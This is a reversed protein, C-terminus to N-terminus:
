KGDGGAGCKSCAPYKEKVDSLSYEIANRCIASCTSRAHYRTGYETIFVQSGKVIVPSCFECAYYKAGSQNREKEIQEGGVGVVDIKIYSCDKKVHYVKGNKTMYVTDGGAETGKDKGTSKGEGTWNRYVLRLVYCRNTEKELVNTPSVRYFIESRNKEGSLESNVWIGMVGQAVNAEELLKEDCRNYFLATMTADRVIKQDFLELVTKAVANEGDALREAVYSFTAVERASAIGAQAISVEARLITFMQLLYLVAFLFAPFAVSAEVTLSANQYRGKSRRCKSHKHTKGCTYKFYYNTIYYFCTFAAVLSPFRFLTAAKVCFSIIRRTKMLVSIM